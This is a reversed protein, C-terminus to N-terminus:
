LDRRPGGRCDYLEKGELSIGFIGVCSGDRSGV